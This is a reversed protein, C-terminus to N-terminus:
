YLYNSFHDRLKSYRATESRNIGSWIGTQLLVKSNLNGVIVSDNSFVKSAKTAISTNKLLSIASTQDGHEWLLKASLLDVEIKSFVSSSPLQILQNVATQSHQLMGAKRSLRAYDLLHSRLVNGQYSSAPLNKLGITRVALCTEVNKSFGYQDMMSEKRESWLKLLDECNGLASIKPAEEIEILSVLPLLSTEINVNVQQWNKLVFNKSFSNFAHDLALPTSAIKAHDRVKSLSEYLNRHFHDIPFM